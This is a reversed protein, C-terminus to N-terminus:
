LSVVRPEWFFTQVWKHFQTNRTGIGRWLILSFFGQIPPPTVKFCYPNPIPNFIPSTFSLSLSTPRVLLVFPRITPPLNNISLKGRPVIQISLWEPVFGFRLHAGRGSRCRISHLNCSCKWMIWAWVEAQYSQWDYWYLHWNHNTSTPNGITGTCIGIAIQAPVFGLQSRYQYLQCNYWIAVQVMVCVLQRLGVKISSLLRKQRRLKVSVKINVSM